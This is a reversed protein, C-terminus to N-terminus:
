KAPQPFAMRRVIAQYGPNDALQPLIRSAALAFVPSREDLAKEYWRLAEDMEGLAAHIDAFAVPDGHQKVELTHLEGLKQHARATDGCTGYTAGLWPRSLAGAGGAIRREAIETQVFADKCKKQIALTRGLKIYGWTWNPDIAITHRFGAAAQECDGRILANIAMDHFPQVSLPDLRAAARSHALGEDLRIM